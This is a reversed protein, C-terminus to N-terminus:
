GRKPIQFTERLYRLGERAITEPDPKYDFVEISVYGQYGVEHLAAAIPRFDTNGMGPARRNADNAHFHAVLPDIPRGGAHRRITEAPPRDEACMSKVDLMLRFSPHDVQRVMEAAEDSTRIFNSEPAPLAEMCLTVGREVLTPVCARFGDRAWAWADAPDTGEVVWRQKPSGFTMVTGGVDACFDILARVYDVTKSRIAPDPSNLHLGPPSVLLWHLGTIELGVDTAVQAIERRQAPSLDRVDPAFTFPALEVGEYGCAAISRCVDPWPTEGYTENCIAFRM